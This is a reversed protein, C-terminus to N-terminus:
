ASSPMRSLTADRPSPSTYLLCTKFSTILKSFHSVRKFTNEFDPLQLLDVTLNKLMTEFEILALYKSEKKISQAKITERFAEGNFCADLFLYMFAIQETTRGTIEKIEYFFTTGTQNILINTLQTALIESKLHHQNM